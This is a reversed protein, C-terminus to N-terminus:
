VSLAMEKKFGFERRNDIWRLWSPKVIYFQEREIRDRITENQTVFPFRLKYWNWARRRPEDDVVAFCEGHLQVGHIDRWDDVHGYITLAVRPDLAIHQSHASDPSSVFYLNWHDDVAYQINAAHPHGDADVTALSATTAAALFQDITSRLEADDM